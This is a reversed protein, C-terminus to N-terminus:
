GRTRIRSLPVITGKLAGRLRRRGKLRQNTTLVGAAKRRAHYARMSAAIRENKALRKERDADYDRMTM